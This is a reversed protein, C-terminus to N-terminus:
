QAPLNEQAQCNLTGESRDFYVINVKLMKICYILGITRLERCGNSPFRKYAMSLTNFSETGIKYTQSQM